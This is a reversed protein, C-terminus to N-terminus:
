STESLSVKVQCQLYSLASWFQTVTFGHQNIELFPPMYDQLFALHYYLKAVLRPDGHLLFLILATLLDEGSLMHTKGCSIQKSKREAVTNVEKICRYLWQLKSVPVRDEVALSLYQFATGYCELFETLDIGDRQRPMSQPIERLLIGSLSIPGNPQHDNYFTSHKLKLPKHSNQNCLENNLRECFVGSDDTIGDDTTVPTIVIRSLLTSGGNMKDKQSLSPYTREPSVLREKGTSNIQLGVGVPLTASMTPVYMGDIIASSRNARSKRKESKPESLLNSEPPSISSTRSITGTSVQSDERRLTSRASPPDDTMSIGSECRQPLRTKEPNRGRRKEPSKDEKNTRYLGMINLIWADTMQLSDLSAQSLIIQLLNTKSNYAKEYLDLISRSTLHFFCREYSTWLRSRNRSQIDLDEMLSEVVKDYGKQKDDTLNELQEYMTNGSIIKEFHHRVDKKIKKTIGKLHEEPMRDHIKSLMRQVAPPSHSTPSSAGGASDSNVQVPIPRSLDISQRIWEDGGSCAVRCEENVSNCFLLHVHSLNFSDDEFLTTVQTQLTEWEKPYSGPLLIDTSRGVGGVSHEFGVSDKGEKLEKLTNVLAERISTACVKVRQLEELQKRLRKWDHQTKLYAEETPSLTHNPQFQRQRFLMKIEEIVYLANTIHNVVNDRTKRCKSSKFFVAAAKKVVLANAITQCVQNRLQRARALNSISSPGDRVKKKADDVKKQCLELEVYANQIDSTLDEYIQQLFDANSSHIAEESNLHKHCLDQRWSLLTKKVENRHQSLNDMNKGIKELVDIQRMLIDQVRDVDDAHLRIIPLIFLHLLQLFDEQIDDKSGAAIQHALQMGQQLDVDPTYYEEDVNIEQSHSCREFKNKVRRGIQCNGDCTTWQILNFECDILIADLVLVKFWLAPELGNVNLKHIHGSKSTLFQPICGDVLSVVPLQQQEGGNGRQRIFVYM